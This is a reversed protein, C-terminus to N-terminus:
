KFEIEEVNVKAGSVSLHLIEPTSRIDGQVIEKGNLRVVLHGSKWDAEWISKTGPDLPTNLSGDTEGLEGSIKLQSGGSSKPRSLRAFFERKDPTKTLGLGFGTASLWRADFYGEVFTLSVQASTVGPPIKTLHRDYHGGEASFIFSEKNANAVARADANKGIPFVEMATYGSNPARDLFAGDRSSVAIFRPNPYKLFADSTIDLSITSGEIKPEGLKFQLPKGIERTAVATGQWKGGHAEVGIAVDYGLELYEEGTTPDNDLDFYCAYWGSNEAKTSIPAGSHFVMRLTQDGVRELQIQLMDFSPNIEDKKFDGDNAEDELTMASRSADQAFLPSM